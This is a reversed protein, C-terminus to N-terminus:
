LSFTYKIIPINFEGIFNFNAPIKEQHLLNNPKKQDEPKPKPVNQNSQNSNPREFPLCIRGGPNQMNPVQNLGQVAQNLQLKKNRGRNRKRNRKTQGVVILNLLNSPQSQPNNLQQGQNFAGFM